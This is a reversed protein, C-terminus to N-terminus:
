KNKGKRKTGSWGTRQGQANESWPPECYDAAGDVVTEFDLTISELLDCVGGFANPCVNGGELDACLVDLVAKCCTLRGVFIDLSDRDMIKSNM